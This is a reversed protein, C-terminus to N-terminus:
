HKGDFTLSSFSCGSTLISSTCTSGVFFFDSSKFPFCTSCGEMTSVDFYARLNGKGKLCLFIFSSSYLNSLNIFVKLFNSNFIGKEFAKFSIGFYTFNRLSIMVLLHFHFSFSVTGRVSVQLEIMELFIGTFSFSGLLKVIGQVRLPRFTPSSGLELNSQWIM